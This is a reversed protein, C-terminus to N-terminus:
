KQELVYITHVRKVCVCMNQAFFFSLIDKTKKMQFNDNECGKFIAAYEKPM